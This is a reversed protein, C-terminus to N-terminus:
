KIVFPKAARLFLKAPAGFHSQAVYFYRRGRSICEIKAEALKPLPMLANMSKYFGTQMAVLLFGKPM